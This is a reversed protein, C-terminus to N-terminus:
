KMGAQPRPTNLGSATAPTQMSARPSQPQYYPNTLRNLSVDMEAKSMRRAPAQVRPQATHHESMVHSLMAEKPVPAFTRGNWRPTAM